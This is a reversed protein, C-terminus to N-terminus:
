ASLWAGPVAGSPQFLQRDAAEEAMGIAKAPVAVGLRFLGHTAGYTGLLPLRMMVSAFFLGWSMRVETMKGYWRM